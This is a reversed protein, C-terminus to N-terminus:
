KDLMIIGKAGSFSSFSRPHLLASPIHIFFVLCSVFVILICLGDSRCVMQSGKRKEQPLTHAYSTNHPERVLPLTVCLLPHPVGKRKPPVKPKIICAPVFPRVSLVCVGDTFQPLRLLRSFRNRILISLM